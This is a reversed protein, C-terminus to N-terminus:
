RARSDQSAFRNREEDSRCAGSAAQLGPQVCCALGISSATLPWAEKRARWVSSVKTQPLFMWVCLLLKLLRYFPVHSRVFPLLTESLHLSAVVSWYALIHADKAKDHSEVAELTQVLPYAFLVIALVFEPAFRYLVTSFLLGATAYVLHTKKLGSQRELQLAIPQKGLIKDLEKDLHLVQEVMERANKLSLPQSLTSILHTPNIASGSPVPASVRAKLSSSM